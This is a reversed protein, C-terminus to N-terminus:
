RRFIRKWWSRSRMDEIRQRSDDLQETLAGSNKQAMAVAQTLHDMPHAPRAPHSVPERQGLGEAIRGSQGLTVQRNSPAFVVGVFDAGFAAAARATVPDSVGCIKVFTM